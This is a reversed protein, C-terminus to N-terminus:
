DRETSNFNQNVENIVKAPWLILLKVSVFPTLM